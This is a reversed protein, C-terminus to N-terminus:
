RTRQPQGSQKARRFLVWGLRQDQGIMRRDGPVWSAACETCYMAEQWLAAATAYAAGFEQHRRWRFLALLGAVLAVVGLLAGFGKASEVAEPPGGLAGVALCLVLGAAGGAVVAPRRWSPLPVLPALAVSLASEAYAQGSSRGRVGGVNHRMTVSIHSRGSDYM